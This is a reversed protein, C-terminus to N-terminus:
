VSTGSAAGRQNRFDATNQVLSGPLRRSCGRRWARISSLVRLCHSLGLWRVVTDARGKKPVKCLPDSETVGNQKARIWIGAPVGLRWSFPETPSNRSRSTHLPCGNRSTNEDALRHKVAGCLATHM